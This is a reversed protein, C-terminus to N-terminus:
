HGLTDHPLLGQPIHKCITRVRDFLKLRGFGTTFKKAQSTGAYIALQLEVFHDMTWRLNYETILSAMEQIRNKSLMQGLARINEFVTELDDIENVDFFLGVDDRGSAIVASVHDFEKRWKNFSHEFKDWSYEYMKQTLDARPQADDDERHAIEKITTILSQVHTEVQIPSRSSTPHSIYIAIGREGTSVAVAARGQKPGSIIVCSLVDLLNRLSKPIQKCESLDDQLLDKRSHCKRAYNQHFVSLQYGTLIQSLITSYLEPDSSSLPTSM